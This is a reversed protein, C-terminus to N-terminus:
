GHYGEKLSIDFLPFSERVVVNLFTPMDLRLRHIHSSQSLVLKSHLIPFVIVVQRKFPRLLAEILRFFSPKALLMVLPELLVGVDELWGVERGFM